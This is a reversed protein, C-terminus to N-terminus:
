AGALRSNELAKEFLVGVAEAEAHGVGRAARAATLLIADVVVKDGLLLEVIQDLLLPKNLVRGKAAVAVSSTDLGYLVNFLLAPRADQVNLHLYSLLTPLCTRLRASVNVWPTLCTAFWGVNGRGLNRNREGGSM